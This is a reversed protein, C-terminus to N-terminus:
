LSDIVSRLIDKLLSNNHTLRMNANKFKELESEVITARDRWKMVDSGVALNANSLRQREDNLRKIEAQSERNVQKWTEIDELLVKRTKVQKM